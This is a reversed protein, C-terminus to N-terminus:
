FIEIMRITHSTASSVYVKSCDDTVYIDSPYFGGVITEIKGKTYDGSADPTLRRVTQHRVDTYWITGDNAAYIGNVQGIWATSTDGATGDPNVAAANEGNGAIPKFEGNDLMYIYGALTSGLIMRGKQDRTLCTPYNIDYEKVVANNVYKYVKNNNRSCLWMAGDLDFHVDMPAKIEGGTLPLQTFKGDKDIKGVWNKDKATYYFSGKSDFCCQWPLETKMLTTVNFNKDMQRIAWGAVGRQTFWLVGNADMALGEPNQMKAAAGNGDELGIAGGAITSLIYEHDPKEKYDFTLGSITGKPTQVTIVYTGPEQAPLVVTLDWANYELVQAELEGIFVRNEGFVESFNRGLIKIIGGSYGSAPSVSALQLETVNAVYGDGKCSTLLGGAFIVTMLFIAIKKM